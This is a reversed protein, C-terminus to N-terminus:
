AYSVWGRFSFGHYFQTTNAFGAERLYEQEEEPSRIIAKDRMGAKGTNRKDEDLEANADFEVHREIWM